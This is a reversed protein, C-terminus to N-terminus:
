KFQFVGFNQPMHFNLEDLVSWSAWHPHSTEDGCKFLNGRWSRGPEIPGVYKELITFPIFFELFWTMASQHEPEISEPASHFRLIQLDDNSDLREYDRFKGNTRTSNKVHHVLLSGGCSFEFNFYGKGPLPELFIEVCSDKFVESQFGTQVCRVYRDEVKFLGFIGTSSYQLKCSTVPRHDSGEPRFQAVDLATVARWAPGDWLGDMEPPITTKVISYQEAVGARM